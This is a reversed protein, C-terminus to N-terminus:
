SAGNVQGPRTYDVSKDVFRNESGHTVVDSGQEFQGVGAQRTIPMEQTHLESVQLAWLSVALASLLFL